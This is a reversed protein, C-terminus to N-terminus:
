VGEGFGSAFLAGIAALAAAADDGTARVAVWSGKHGCLLLTGLISKGDARQGDKELEIRAHFQSAVRVLAAAARTHLGRENVIEYSAHVDQSLDSITPM